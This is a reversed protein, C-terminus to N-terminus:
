GGVGVAYAWDDLVAYDPDTSSLLDRVRQVAEQTTLANGNTNYIEVPSGDINTPDFNASFVEDTSVKWGTAETLGLVCSSWIWSYTEFGTPASGGWNFNGCSQHSYPEQMQSAMTAGTTDNFAILGVPIPSPLTPALGSRTFPRTDAGDSIQLGYGADVLSKPARVFYAAAIPGGVKVKWVYYNAAVLGGIAGGRALVWGPSLEGWPARSLTKGADVMWKVIRPVVREKPATPPRKADHVLMLCPRSAECDAQANRDGSLARLSNAVGTVNEDVVPDGGARASAPHVATAAFAVGVLWCVSLWLLPRREGVCRRGATWRATGMLQIIVELGVSDRGQHQAERPGQVIPPRFGDIIRPGGIM